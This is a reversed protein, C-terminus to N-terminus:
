GNMMFQLFSPLREGLDIREKTRKFAEEFQQKNDMNYYDVWKLMAFHLVELAYLYRKTRNEENRLLTLDRYISIAGVGDRGLRYDTIDFNEEKWDTLRLNITALGEKELLLNKSYELGVDNTEFSIYKFRQQLKLFNTGFTILCYEM